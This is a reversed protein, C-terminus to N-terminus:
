SLAGSMRQAERQAERALAGIRREGAGLKAALAQLATPPAEDTAACAQTLLAIARQTTSAQRESYRRALRFTMAKLCRAKADSAQGRDLLLQADDLWAAADRSPDHLWWMGIPALALLFCLGFINAIITLIELM